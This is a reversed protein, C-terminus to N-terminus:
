ISFKKHVLVESIFSPIFSPIIIEFVESFFIKSPILGGGDLFDVLCCFFSCCGNIQFKTPGALAPTALRLAAAACDWEVVVVDECDNNGNEDVVGNDVVFMSGVWVREWRGEDGWMSGVWVREWSGEDGWMRVREWRREVGWMM